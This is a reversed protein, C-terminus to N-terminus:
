GFDNSKCYRSWCEGDGGSVADLEEVSIKYGEEEALQLLEEPTKCARAKERLEPSLDKIDM